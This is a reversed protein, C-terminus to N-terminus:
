ISRMEICFEVSANKAQKLLEELIEAQTPKFVAGRFAFSIKTLEKSIVTKCDAHFCGLLKECITLTLPFAEWCEKIMEFIEAILPILTSVTRENITKAIDAALRAESIERFCGCTKFSSSYKAILPKIERLLMVENKIITIPM